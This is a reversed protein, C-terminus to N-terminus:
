FLSAEENIKRVIKNTVIVLIFGIVSQFLGIASGMGIDSTSESMVSRFIYTDIVDVVKYLRVSNQTVLYYLGFDSSFIRGVALIIQIVTIPILFPISVHWAKQLRTAGDVDAAEYYSSDVGVLVAYNIIVSYGLYKWEGVFLIIFPWLAANIYINNTNLGLSQFLSNAMGYAPSIFAYLVFSIVVWSFFYPLFMSTQYFKIAVKSRIENLLLSVGLSLITGIIIFAFNYALTNFTINFARDSKFFFEFNKFIPNVWKSGWIGLDYRYDKFAVIVGGMPLYAFIFLYVLVPLALVLLEIDRKLGFINKKPKGIIPITQQLENTSRIKM